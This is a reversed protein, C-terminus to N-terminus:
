FRWLVQVVVFVLYVIILNFGEKVSIEKKSYLYTGLIITAIVLFCFMLLFQQFYIIRIPYIVAALGLVLCSNAVVTGLTDGLIMDQHKKEVSRLGFVLEPFTTGLSVILIGIIILPLNLKIALYSATKTIIEALGLLLGIGIIFLLINVRLNASPEREITPGSSREYLMLLVYFSFAVLIAIGDVRSITKDLALLLPYLALILSFFINRRTIKSDFQLGRGIIAGLGMIFTLNIINAGIVNGLSLNSIKNIASSIGVSIEPLSTAVSAIIVSVAFENWKLAVAIKILSRLVIDSSKMLIVSAIIIILLYLIIM